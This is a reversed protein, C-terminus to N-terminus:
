EGIENSGDKTVGCAERIRRAYGEVESRVLAVTKRARGDEHPAYGDMEDALKLLAARDVIPPLPEGEPMGDGAIECVEGPIVDGPDILDALREVSERTFVSGYLFREDSELGLRNELIIGAVGDHKAAMRRLSRAVDRRECDTVCVM